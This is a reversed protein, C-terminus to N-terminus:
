RTARRHSSSSNPQALPLTLLEGGFEGVIGGLFSGVSLRILASVPSKAKAAYPAIAVAGGYAGAVGSGEIFTQRYPNEANVINKYSQYTGYVGGIIGLGAMGNVKPNTRFYRTKRYTLELPEVVDLVARTGPLGRERTALKKVFRDLNGGFNPRTERRDPNWGHVRKLLRAQTAYTLRSTGNYINLLASGNSFIVGNSFRIYDDRQHNDHTKFIGSIGNLIRRLLGPRKATVPVTNLIADYDKPNIVFTNDAKSVIGSTETFESSTVEGEDEPCPEPCGGKGGGINGLGGKLAFQATTLLLSTKWSSDWDAPNFSNNYAAAGVYFHAAFGLVAGIAIEGNPDVMNVPNNAMALYPSAFQLAPDVLHWRGLQPDYYRSGFDDWHLGLSDLREKGQYHFSYPANAKKGIGVMEMGFPYYHSEQVMPSSQIAIRLDDFWVPIDAENAVYVQVYGEELAVIPDIKLEQWGNEADKTIQKYQGGIWHNNKDYFDLKLYANPIENGLDDQNGSPKWLIGASFIYQQNDDLSQPVEGGNQQPNPKLTNAIFIEWDNNKNNSIPDPEYLAFADAQVIDGKSVKLTITSGMVSADPETGGIKTSYNFSSVDSLEPYSANSHNYNSSRHSALRAFSQEEETLREEEMSAHYTRIESQGIIARLNGQYDAIFYEYTGPSDPTLPSVFPAFVFRGESTETYLLQDNLYLYGGFYEIIVPDKGYPRIETRLKNGVADYFNEIESNDIFIIKEPLDLTNYTITEIGKNKDAILQGEENYFYQVEEPVTPPIFDQAIGEQYSANDTVKVLQNGDYDYTLDDIEGFTPIGNNYAGLGQRKISIINGQEDYDLDSVSFDETAYGGVHDYDAMVLRKLGDYDYRYAREVEDTTSKWEVASILGDLRGKGVEEEPNLGEEYYIEMGFVDGETENLMLGGNISKLGGHLHYAYDITQLPNGQADQGIKKQIVQGMENYVYQALLEEPVGELTEFAIKQYIGLVRGAHDHEYRQSILLVEKAIGGEVSPPEFTNTNNSEEDNPPTNAAGLVVFSTESLSVVPNTTSNTITIKEQAQYLAETPNEDLILSLPINSNSEESVEGGEETENGENSEGGYSFYHHLDLSQILRGAYDFQNATIDLGGKHNDAKIQIPNFYQDYYSVTCLWVPMGEPLEEQQNAKDIGNLIRIKSGTVVRKLQQYMPKQSLPADETAVFEGLAYLDPAFYYRNNTIFEYDDYYFVKLIQDEVFGSPFSQYTYFHESEETTRKEHIEHTLAHIEFLSKLQEQSLNPYKLIGEIVPRGYIDYRVFSWKDNVAQVEDQTLVLRDWADYIYKISGGQPIETRVLLGRRNYAYHYSYKKVEANINGGAAKWAKFALPPLQTILQGFADYVYYTDLKDGTEADIVRTMITLGRTDQFSFAQEGELGTSYSVSLYNAPYNVLGSKEPSIWYVNDEDTNFHYDQSSYKGQGVWNNGPLAQSQPYNMPSNDYKANAYPFSTGPTGLPPTNSYFSAQRQLVQNPDQLEGNTNGLYPLYHTPQNGFQDYVMPQIVDLGSPSAQHEIQQIPRGLGDTYSTQVAVKDMPAQIVDEIKEYPSLPSYVRVSNNEGLTQASLQSSLLAILLVLYIKLNTKM